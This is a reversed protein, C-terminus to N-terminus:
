RPQWRGHALAYRVEADGANPDQPVTRIVDSGKLEWREDIKGDRNMDILVLSFRREAVSGIIRVKYPRDPFVDLLSQRDLHANALQAFIDRDMPRLAIGAKFEPIEMTDFTAADPREQESKGTSSSSSSASSRAPTWDSQPEAAKAEVSNVSRSCRGIWVGLGGVIVLAVVITETKWRARDKEMM